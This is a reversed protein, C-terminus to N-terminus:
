ERPSVSVTKNPPVIFILNNEALPDLFDFYIHVRPQRRHSLHPERFRAIGPGPVSYGTLTLIAIELKLKDSSSDLCAVRSILFLM